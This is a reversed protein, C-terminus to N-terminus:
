FLRFVRKEGKQWKDRMAQSKAAHKKLKEFDFFHAFLANQRSKAWKPWKQGFVPMKHGNETLIPGMKM